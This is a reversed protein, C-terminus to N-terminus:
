HSTYDLIVKYVITFQWVILHNRSSLIEYLLGMVIGVQDGRTDQYNITEHQNGPTEWWHLTGHEDDPHHLTQKVSTPFEVSGNVARYMSGILSSKGSGVPGFLAIDSLM